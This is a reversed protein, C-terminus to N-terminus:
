SEKAHPTRAPHVHTVWKVSPSTDSKPASPMLAAKELALEARV